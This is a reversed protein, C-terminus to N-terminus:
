KAKKGIEIIIKRQERDVNMVKRKTENERESNLKIETVRMRKLGKSQKRTRNM